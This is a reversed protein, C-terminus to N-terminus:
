DPLLRPLEVWPDLARLVQSGWGRGRLRGDLIALRGGRRRLGCLGRQLRAIAEPLLLERFWDRGQQRLQDVRAATLPDELSAIPLLGVVMQSPFPLRQHEALWWSWSACLVGNSEPATTEHCVRTGFEAALGAALAARLNSDDVLVVTLGGQGLVLQRCQHLLHDAFLPTNPLPQRRPAYLPLAEQLPPDALAVEVPSTLGFRAGDAGDGILDGLLVVGRNHFLGQLQRLPQLPQRVLHWQLLTRDVRAWSCWNEDRAKLWTAWPEPLPALLALLQRLPAEDSPCVGVLRPGRGPAALLRESLRRHLASLSAEAQPHSRWLQEWDSPEIAIALAQRLETELQEAEPIVLQRDALQGQQWAQVLDGPQLLWLARKSPATVGEWLAPALGAARLRPWDVNLLRRRSEGRLVLAPPNDSLALPVLLSIWWIPDSSSALRIVTHDSRRLSRGVLRSLSLHHPWRPAGEERLLAKLQLHASAELM